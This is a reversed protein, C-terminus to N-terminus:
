SPPIKLILKGVVERSEMKAAAKKYDQLPFIEYPIKFGQNEVLDQLQSGHRQYDFNFMSAGVIKANKPVLARLNFEPVGSAFGFIIWSGNKALSGFSIDVNAKGISDYVVQVGKNDTIELVRKLVDEKKHNILFEAGNEKASALKEDTSAVAIVHAGRQSLLKSFILGCGGGAAYLLVYDGKQVNYSENILGLVTIGNVILSTYIILKEDSTDDPLKFVISAPTKTFQAFTYFGTYVVKDGPKVNKVGKGVKVVIGSAELGPIIPFKKPYWPPFGESGRILSDVFGVGAYKNAILVDNDEIIEPVEYNEVYKLNDLDGQEHYLIVKQTEPINTM